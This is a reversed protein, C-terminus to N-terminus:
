KKTKFYNSKNQNKTRLSQTRPPKSLGDSSPPKSSNQSNRKIQKELEVIRKSQEVIQREQRKIVASQGAIISAQEVVMAELKEIKILLVQIIQETDM